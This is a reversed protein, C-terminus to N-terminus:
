QQLLGGSGLTVEELAADNALMTIVVDREACAGAISAAVKAGAQGLRFTKEPTRNFVILDHGGALVRAAIASGMRGLGIFGVKM